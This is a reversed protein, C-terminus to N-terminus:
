ESSHHARATPTTMTGPSSLGASPTLSIQRCCSAPRISCSVVSGPRTPWVGRACPTGLLPCLPMWAMVGMQWATRMTEWAATALEGATDLDGRRWAVWALTASAQGVYELMGSRRALEVAQEATVAAEAAAGRKRQTVAMYSLCRTETTVDGIRRATELAATFEDAADHYRGAWLLLFGLSFRAFATAKPNGVREMHAVAGREYALTQESPVYRLAAYTPWRLGSFSCAASASTATRM